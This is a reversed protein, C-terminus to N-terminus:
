KKTYIGGDATRFFMVCLIICSCILSKDLLVKSEFYFFCLSVWAALVSLVVMPLIIPQSTKERIWESSNTPTKRFDSISRTDIEAVRQLTSTNKKM